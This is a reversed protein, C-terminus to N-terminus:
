QIIKRRKLSKIIENVYNAQLIKCSNSNFYYVIADEFSLENKIKPSSSFSGLFLVIISDKKLIDEKLSIQALASRDVSLMKRGYFGNLTDITEYIFQNRINEFSLIYANLDLNYLANNKSEFRFNLLSETGSKTLYVPSGKQEDFACLNFQPLPISKINIKDSVTNLSDILTLNYKALAGNSARISKEYSSDLRQVFYRSLISDQMEHISDRDRLKNALETQFDKELKAKLQDKDENILFIALGSGLIIISLVVQGIEEKSYKAKREKNIVTLITSL